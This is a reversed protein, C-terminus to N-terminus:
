ICHKESLVNLSCSEMKGVACFLHNKCKTRLTIIFTVPICVYSNIFFQTYSWLLEFHLDVLCLECNCVSEESLM